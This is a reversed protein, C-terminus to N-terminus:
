AGHLASFATWPWVPPPNESFDMPEGTRPHTFHLERSWLAIGEDLLESSGYKKDGLIPWGMESLQCRIQHTRGTHLRIKLLSYEGATELVEYDLIAEQSEATGEAVACTIRRAKDRHLFHRLTGQPAAPTGAVVAWYTKGFHDERLQASLEAAARRTRGLVMVGGVVRDLRHVTRVNDDNLERRLREPVGGPEDTSLIGFPKVCVALTRDAFLIKM